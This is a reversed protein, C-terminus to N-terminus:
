RRVGGRASLNRGMEVADRVLDRLAAEDTGSDVLANIKAELEEATLGPPATAVATVLILALAAVATVLGFTIAVGNRDAVSGAIMGAIGAVFIVIVVRRVIRPSM